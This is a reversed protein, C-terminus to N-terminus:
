GGHSPRWPPAAPAAPRLALRPRAVPGLCGGQGPRQSRQGAGPVRYATAGQGYRQCGGVDTDLQQHVARHAQLLDLGADRRPDKRRHAV